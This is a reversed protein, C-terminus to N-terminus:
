LEDVIRKFAKGREKYNEFMGFSACAPSLVVAGDKVAKSLFEVATELSQARSFSRTVSSKWGAKQLEEELKLATQGILAVAVVQPSAVIKQALESFDAFKDSGGLILGLRTKKFADIAGIAADPRTAYSDNYFSLTTVQKVFELRHELGSFNEAATLIQEPTAGLELAVSGAAAWNELNFEGTLRTRNMPLIFGAKKWEVGTETILVESDKGFGSKGYAIKRAPSQAAIWSSGPADAAYTLFDNESQSSVMKSKHLWYEEQSLHWDLHESTTKLVAAYKPNVSLTSCQFSSLELILKTDSSSPKELESILDLAAVGINGGLEVPMQAAQLIAYLMSCCTGKGLTGTVGIIRGRGVKEIAWEIQSTVTGGSNKFQILEPLDPRVGASRFITKMKSIGSLYKEDFHLRSDLEKPRARDFVTINTYGQALLYACTSKGEVGFGLVGIPEQIMTPHTEKIM